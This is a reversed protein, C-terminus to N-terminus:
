YAEPILTTLLQHRGVQTDEPLLIRIDLSTSTAHGALAVDILLLNGKETSSGRGSERIKIRWGRTGLVRFAIPHRINSQVRITMARPLDIFGRELDESDVRFSQVHQQASFQLWPTVTASVRLRTQSPAAVATAPLCLGLLLLLGTARSSIRILAKM